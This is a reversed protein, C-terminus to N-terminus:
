NTWPIGLTSAARGKRILETSPEFLSLLKGPTRTDGRFIRARTQKTVQKVLPVRTQLAQRLGELAMQKLLFRSQTVGAVIEEAFRKAQSVVRSTAHILKSHTSKLKEQSQGGKARAARL